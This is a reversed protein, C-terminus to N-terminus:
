NKCISLIKNTRITITQVTAQVHKLDRASSPLDQFRHYQQRNEQNISINTICNSLQNVERFIHVIQIQITGMIMHM